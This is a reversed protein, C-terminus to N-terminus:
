REISTKASAALNGRVRSQRLQRRCANRHLM